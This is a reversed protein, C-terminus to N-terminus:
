NNYGVFGGRDVFCAFHPSPKLGTVRKVSQEPLTKTPKVEALKSTYLKENTVKQEIVPLTKQSNRYSAFDFKGYNAFKDTSKSNNTKQSEIPAPQATTIYEQSQPLQDLNPPLTLM